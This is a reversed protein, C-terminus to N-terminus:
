RLCWTKSSMNVSFSCPHKTCHSEDIRGRMERNVIENQRGIIEGTVPDKVDAAFVRGFVRNALRM